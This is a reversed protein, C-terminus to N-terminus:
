NINLWIDTKIFKNGVLTALHHGDVFVNNNEYTVISYKDIFMEENLKSNLERLPGTKIKSYQRTICEGSLFETIHLRYGFSM